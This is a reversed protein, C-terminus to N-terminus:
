YIKEIENANLGNADCYDDLERPNRILTLELLKGTKRERACLVQEGTCISCRLVPELFRAYDKKKKGFLGM